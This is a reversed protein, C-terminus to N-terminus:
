INSQWKIYSNTCNFKKYFLIKENIKFNLLIFFYKKVLILYNQYQM